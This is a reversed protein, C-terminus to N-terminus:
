TLMTVKGIEGNWTCTLRPPGLSHSRPICEQPTQTSVITTGGAEVEVGSQVVEEQGL